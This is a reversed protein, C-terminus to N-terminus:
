GAQLLVKAGPEVQFYDGARGQNVAIELYSASNIILLPLGVSVGDYSAALHRLSRGGLTVVVNEPNDTFENITDSTINTIINGFHDIDIVLGAIQKRRRDITPRPLDLRTLRAPDLEPGLGDIHNDQALHAALPAFIDRGHFTRSLPQLYLDPRKTEFVRIGHADQVVLSLLGNDPALFYHGAANLLLIRRSGGVGPDVVLVHISGTPFYRYNAAIMLAAQRVDHARITHCLDVIRAEPARSLIVGKMVGTYHNLCGFDTTLTILRM